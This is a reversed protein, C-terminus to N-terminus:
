RGSAGILHGNRGLFWYFSGKILIMMLLCTFINNRRVFVFIPLFMLLAISNSALHNFNGHFFSSTFIGIFGKLSRPVLGFKQVIGALVLLHIAWLLVVFLFSTLYKNTILKKHAYTLFKYTRSFEIRKYFFIIIKEQFEILAEMIPEWYFFLVAIFFFFLIM